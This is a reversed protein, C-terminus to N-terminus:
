LIGFRGFSSIDRNCTKAVQKNISHYPEYKSSAVFFGFYITTRSKKANILPSQQQLCKPVVKKQPMKYKPDLPISDRSPKGHDHNSM